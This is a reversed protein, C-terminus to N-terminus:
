HHALAKSRYGVIKWRGIMEGVTFFGLVEATVIGASIWQTRTMSRVRNLINVPQASSSESTRIFLNTPNRLANQMPKLYGQVTAMDSFRPILIHYIYIHKLNATVYPPAMGRQQAVLKGLELAVKSYYTIRPIM